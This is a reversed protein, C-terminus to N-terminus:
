LGAGAGGRVMAHCAEWARSRKCVEPLESGM